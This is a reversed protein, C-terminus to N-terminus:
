KKKEVVIETLKGVRGLVGHIEQLLAVRNARVALDPDMVLVDVFFRDLAGALENVRRLSREYERAATAAEVEGRLTQLEKYLAVEADHRLHKADLTHAPQERLINEIRKAAQVISVFQDEERVRHIADVRAQLDPLNLSGLALAAEIEDYAFGQLGLIYRLRDYLFARLDARIEEGGRKLRDGFLTASQEAARALDVVLGGELALRVIGQAARRLGFPDKSGTPVFGLGFMGVLTDLRDALGVMRGVTSRPLGDSTGAPLYQDYIAQWVSERLGDERAYIGGMIGQLSTFEKVMETTLDVKLLAAAERAHAITQTDAASEKGIWEALAVVRVTKAAYSGLKEHFLLHELKPARAALATKRDETYFFQADALRARVVWENGGRVHGAPDDRRDMVTFFVPLLAGDKEVTFASQHDKLSTTLVERPLAMVEPSLKGEMVGPIECIAALKGLLDDDEVLTGGLAKAREHMLATLTERRAEANPEIGREALRARYDAANAVAFPEPSLIAHGVTSAGAAIGFVEFPVVEGDFLSVIGHIPRVWPGIGSGWRMTKQWSLATLLRPVIERLVESTSRGTVRRIDALYLGKAEPKTALASWEGLRMRTSFIKKDKTEVVRLEALERDCRKAFGEAAATFGGDKGLAAQLPPGLIEEDRDPESKPLGKLVVLLRRPTYGTEVEAPGLGRAMLEEFIRTALERAAGPLMRAPIEEARVELLYESVRKVSTSEAM